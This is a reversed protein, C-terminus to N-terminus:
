GRVSTKSETVRFMSSESEKCYQEYLGDKKLRDTDVSRRVSKSFSIKYNGAIAQAKSVEDKQQAIIKLKLSECLQTKRKELDKMQSNILLYEASMSEAESDLILTTACGTFLANIADSEADIGSPAPMIGKEIFNEWFDKEAEILRSIFADDRQIVYHCFAHRDICYASLIFWPLDLVAMYHQVQAFYSDPVEHESFGDGRQTTKIEHGGLGSLSIGNIEKEEQIYVLGDINASMFPHTASTFMYPCEEIMVGLAEKAKERIPEELWSGRETSQNGAFHNLGKKDLYVTLPSAWKNLGMVAGADSGGIGNRRELLWQEKTMGKTFVHEKHTALLQKYLPEM